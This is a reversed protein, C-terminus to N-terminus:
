AILDRTHAWVTMRHVGFRKAISVVSEGNQRATSAVGVTRNSDPPTWWVDNNM